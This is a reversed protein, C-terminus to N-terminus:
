PMAIIIIFLPLNGLLHVDILTYDRSVKQESSARNSFDHALCNDHVYRLCSLSKTRYNCFLLKIELFSISVHCGHYMWIAYSYSQGFNVGDPDYYKAYCPTLLKWWDLLM